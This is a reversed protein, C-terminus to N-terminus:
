QQTGGENHLKSQAISANVAFVEFKDTNNFNYEVEAYYGRLADGDISSNAKIAIVDGVLIAGANTFSLTHSDVIGNVTAGAIQTYTGGSYKYADGSLRFPIRSVRSSFTINPDNEASVVGIVVFNENGEARPAQAYFGDEREVFANSSLTSSQSETTITARAASNSEISLSQFVKSTSPSANFVTSFRADYQTGFFNSYTSNTEASWIANGSVDRFHYFQSGLSAYADAVVDSDCIWKGVTPSYISSKYSSYDEVIPQYIQGGLTDPIANSRTYKIPSVILENSAKDYGLNVRYGKDAGGGQSPYAALEDFVGEFYESVGEDSINKLGSSSVEFIAARNVDAFYLSDGYRVYATRDTNIGAEQPYYMESGLVSTSLSISSGGDATFIIDRSVPVVSIKDEQLAYITNDKTELGYIGGFERNLDKWNALSNNFSSMNLNYSDHATADSYTISSDQNLERENPIVAFPKGRETYESDTFDNIADDEIYRYFVSLDLQNPRVSGNTIIDNTNLSYLKRRRLYCNGINAEHTSAWQSIPISEGIGYYITGDSFTKKPTYIEILVGNKWFDTAAKVEDISFGAKNGSSIVLFDGSKRFDEQTQNPTPSGYLTLPSNSATYTELGVVDFEYARPRILDGNDDFYHVVRVRDGESFKYEINAGDNEVYSQEKGQLSRLSLYLRDSYESDTAAEVITYQLFSEYKSGGGYVFFFRSFDTPIPLGMQIDVHAAGDLGNRSADGRHPIFVNGIEQVGTHRGKDDVLVVGFSHSENAKLTVYKNTSPVFRGQSDTISVIDYYFAENATSNDFDVNGSVTYDTVLGNQHEVYSPYLSYDKVQVELKVLNTAPVYTADQVYITCNGAYRVYLDVGNPLDTITTYYTASPIVPVNREMGVFSAALANGFDTRSSYASLPITGSVLFEGTVFRTQVATDTTTTEAGFINHTVSRTKFVEHQIEWNGMTLQIIFDGDDEGSSPYSSIDIDVNPSGSSTGNLGSAIAPYSKPPEHFNPTITASIDPINFGETYNGYMLRNGAIAQSQATKPVSNQIKNYEADSVPAYLGDGSFTFNLDTGATIVEKEEAVYFTNGNGERYLLRVKEVADTTTPVNVSMRNFLEIFGEETVTSDITNPAFYLRSYMGISSVEGDRYIYQAAFQFGKGYLSNSSYNTDTFFEATPEIPPEKAVTIEKLKESDSAGAPYSGAIAKTVNIKKPEAVGDTYYLYIEDRFTLGDIHLEHEPDLQLYSGRLVLTANASDAPNYRYLSHNGYDNAVFFYITNERKYEYAGVVRNTGSPLSTSLSVATNGKINKIVGSNGSADTTVKINSASPMEVSQLIKSDNDKNLYRPTNKIVAM